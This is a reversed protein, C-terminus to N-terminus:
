RCALESRVLAAFGAVDVPQTTDVHVVPTLGLPAASGAWAAWDCALRRQDQHLPHRTRRAYRERAVEAPVDCWIEVAAAAGVRSIGSRAHELDRPRFWFSEIIVAGEVDCALSWITEMAIAGLSRPLSGRISAALSEKIEDKSLVSAPLQDGLSRALTTKGSGPLGNVLVLHDAVTRM